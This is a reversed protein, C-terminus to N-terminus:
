VAKLIPQPCPKPMVPTTTSAVAAAVGENKGALHTPSKVVQATAKGLHSFMAALQGLEHNLKKTTM